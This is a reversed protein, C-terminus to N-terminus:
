LNILTEELGQKIISSDNAISLSVIDSEGTFMMTTTSDNFNHVLTLTKSLM